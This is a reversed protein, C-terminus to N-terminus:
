NVAGCRPTRADVEGSNAPPVLFKARRRPAESGAVIWARYGAGAAVETLAGGPRDEDLLYITGGQGSPSGGHTAVPAREAYLLVVGGEHVMRDPGIGEVLWGRPTAARLATGLDALAAHEEARKGLASLANDLPERGTVVVFVVLVGAVAGMVWRRAREPVLLAAIVDIGLGVGLFAAPLLVVAHRRQSWVLFSPVVVVLLSPLAAAVRWQRRRAALVIGGVLGALLWAHVDHGLAWARRLHLKLLAVPREDDPLLIACPYEDTVRASAVLDGAPYSDVVRNLYAPQLGRDLLDLDRAVVAAKDAWPWRSPLVWPSSRALIPTGGVCLALVVPAWLAGLRARPPVLISFLLAPLLLALGHERAGAALAVAVTYAAFSLLSRRLAHVVATAAVAGLVAATTAEPQFILSEAVLDPHVAVLAAGLAGALRSSGAARVGLYVVGAATGGAVVSVLRGGDAVGPGLWGVLGALAPFLPPVVLPNGAQWDLASLGWLPADSGVAVDVGFGRGAFARLLTAVVAAGGALLADFRDLARAETAM